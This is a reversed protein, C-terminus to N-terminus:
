HSQEDAKNKAKGINLAAIEIIRYWWKDKTDTMACVTSAITVVAGAITLLADKNEVIWSM